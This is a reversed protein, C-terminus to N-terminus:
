SKWSMARFGTQRTNASAEGTYTHNPMSFRGQLNFGRWRPIRTAGPDQPNEAPKGLPAAVALRRGLPAVACARAVKQLFSRRNM